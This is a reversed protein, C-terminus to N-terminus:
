FAPTGPPLKTLDQFNLDFSFSRTPAYYYGGPEQFQAVARQSSYLSVLSGNLTLSCGTWDELLRPLNCVGGSYQGLNPGTSPVSGTLVAANVTTNAAKRVGPGFTKNSDADKWNPSLITLADSLLACPATTSTNTTNLFAANTCNYSGLVYLPNHTALTFGASGNPPAIGNTLRVATLQSSNVTREDAVYLITSYPSGGLLGKLQVWYNTRLWRGYTGVDIQTVLVNKSERQDIFTNSLCLFPLNPNLVSADNTFSMMVPSPDLGPPQGNRILVIVNANSVLLVLQAQNYIRHVAVYSDPSEGPPPLDILSYRNTYLPTSVPYVNTAYGANFSASGTYQSANKGDWAPSAISGVATVLDNFALSFTSGLYIDANCHVRGNIVLPSCWTFELLGSYFIAYSFIPRYWVGKLRFYQEENTPQFAMSLLAASSSLVPPTGLSVWPSGPSLGECTELDCVSFPANTWSVVVYDNSSALNLAPLPQGSVHAVGFSPGLGAVLFAAIKAM